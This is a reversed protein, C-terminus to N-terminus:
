VPLPHLTSDAGVSLVVGQLIAESAREPTFTSIRRQCSAAVSAADKGVASIMEGLRLALEEVSDFEVAYGTIGEVILEPSCGCQVSVVAPCGFSFAENVVLGWPESESPLALVTAASYEQYLKEGSQPGSLTVHGSLSLANIQDRLAATLPGTGVIVCEVDVTERLAAIASILTHLNKEPSLRGVFLVRPRSLTSIAEIREVFAREACYYSPLWAAQCRLYISKRPVGHFMLYDRSRQGYCFGADIMYFFLRKLLYKFLYQRRDNMTSDCFVGIRKRRLRLIFAQCWYELRDYGALLIFDADTKFAKRACEFVRRLVPVDSYAGKFLLEYPYRHLSVDVEALSKRDIETEAIQIVSLAIGYMKCQDWLESLVAAKYRSWMINHWIELHFRGKDVKGMKSMM